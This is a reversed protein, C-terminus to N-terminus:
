REYRITDWQAYFKSCRWHNKTHSCAFVNKMDWTSNNITKAVGGMLSFSPCWMFQPSSIAFWRYWDDHHALSFCQDATRDYTNCEKRCTCLMTADKELWPCATCDYHVLVMKRKPSTKEDLKLTCSGSLSCRQLNWSKRTHIPFHSYVMKYTIFMKFSSWIPPPIIPPAGRLVFHIKYKEETAFLQLYVSISVSFPPLILNLLRWSLDRQITCTSWSYIFRGTSRLDWLFIWGDKHLLWFALWFFANQVWSAQKSEGDM